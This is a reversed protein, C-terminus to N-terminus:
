QESCANIAAHWCHAAQIPDFPRQNDFMGSSKLVNLNRSLTGGVCPCLECLYCILCKYELKHAHEKYLRHVPLYDERHRGLPGCFM